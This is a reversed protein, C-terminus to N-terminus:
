DNDCVALVSILAVILAHWVNEQTKKLSNLASFVIANVSLGPDPTVNFEFNRNGPGPFCNSQSHHGKLISCADANGKESILCWYEKQGILYWCRKRVLLLDTYIRKM